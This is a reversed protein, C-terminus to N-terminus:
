WANILDLPDPSIKREDLSAPTPPGFVADDIM